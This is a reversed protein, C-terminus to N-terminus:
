RVDEGCLYLFDAVGHMADIVAALHLNTSLEDFIPCASPEPAMESM